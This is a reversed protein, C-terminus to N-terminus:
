HRAAPVETRGVVCQHQDDDRDGDRRAPVSAGCREGCDCSSSGEVEEQGPRVSRKPDALLAVDGRLNEEDRYTEEDTFERRAAPMVLPRRCAALQLDRPKMVEALPDGLSLFRLEHKDGHRVLQALEKVQLVAL